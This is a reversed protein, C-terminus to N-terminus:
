APKGIDIVKFIRGDLYKAYRKWGLLDCDEHARREIPYRLADEIASVFDVSMKRGGINIWKVYEVAGDPRTAEIVWRFQERQM